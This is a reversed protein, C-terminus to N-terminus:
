SYKLALTLLVVFGSVIAEIEPAIPPSARNGHTASRCSRNGGSSSQLSGRFAQSKSAPPPHQTVIIPGAQTAESPPSFFAVAM